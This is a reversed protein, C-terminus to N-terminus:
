ECVSSLEIWRAPAIMVWDRHSWKPQERLEVVEGAPIVLLVSYIDKDPGGYVGTDQCLQGDPPLSWGMLSENEVAIVNRMTTDHVGVTGHIFLSMLILLTIM